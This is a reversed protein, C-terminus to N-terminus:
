VRDIRCKWNEEPGDHDMADLVKMLGHGAEAEQMGLLQRVCGPAELEVDM